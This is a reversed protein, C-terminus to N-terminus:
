SYDHTHLIHMLKYVLYMTSASGGTCEFATQLLLVIASGFCLKFTNEPLVAATFTPTRAWAQFSSPFTCMHGLQAWAHIYRWSHGLLVLLELTCPTDLSSCVSHVFQASAQACTYMELCNELKPVGVEVATCMNSM